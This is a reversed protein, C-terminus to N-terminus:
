RSMRAALRQQADPTALVDASLGAARRVLDLDLSGDLENLLRKTAALAMPGGQALRETVALVHADLDAATPLSKDVLGLEAARAGSLTGGSLLIVRARGAGVKRVLWPAVVAPCVGLDVEPFGVKADDHTLAVDCVTTLGCGGGIAAGNVRAVVVQPLTRIEVTLEALSTLLRLALDHNGLVARLDMGACFSKGAGTIVVVRVGTSGALERVKERLAGLLDLSLANHAEPRNITLHAIPGNTSLTALM